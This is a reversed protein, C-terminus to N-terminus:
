MVNLLSADKLYQHLKFMANCRRATPVVGSSVKVLCCYYGVLCPPM